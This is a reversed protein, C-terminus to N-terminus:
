EEGDGEEHEGDAAAVVVTAAGRGVGHNAEGVLFTVALMVAFVVQCAPVV